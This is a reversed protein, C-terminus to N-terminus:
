SSRTEDAAEAVDLMEDEDEDVEKMLEEPSVKQTEVKAKEVIFDVVKDEFIPARLQELAAPNKQYFEFVQRAQGPFRQAQAIMAQQLEKNEVKVENKTGIDSLLLGLRVRREAIKRYEEKAEEESKNEDAFTQGQRQMEATLQNWIADFELEVMGPPVEFPYRDALVDLLARKLKMRTARGYEAAFRGEVAEKLKDVSEQGLKKAFEDDLQVLGPEEIKTVKIDFTAAKGKLNEAGYDEPFTVEIVKEEGVSTGVLQDEFGPVLMGSGIVVPMDKGTGGDFAVGDIKGAFDITVRDDQQAPRPEAPEAYPRNAKVIDDLAKQVTEAPIEAEYRTLEIAALDVEPPTPLNEVHLEFELDKGEDFSTVEVKPQLAPRLQNDAIAKKSGEDISKELIEGTVSRGYQKKLLSVPAKGPRFGPLRATKALASLREAVKTEIDAAPVVVKLHHKLGDASVQTVQM